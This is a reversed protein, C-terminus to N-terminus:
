SLTLIYYLLESIINAQLLRCYIKNQKVSSLNPRLYIYAHILMPAHTKLPYLMHGAIHLKIICLKNTLSDNFLLM